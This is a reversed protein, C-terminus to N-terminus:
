RGVGIPMQVVDLTAPHSRIEQVGEPSLERDLSIQAIAAKSSGLVVNEMEQVNIEYKRIISFVDALVGVRDHHRVVLLHTAKSSGKQVNVVNHVAGTLVYDKVIRVTEAAVAEQAQDTSAGIHHTVVVNPLSALPSEVVGEGGSPEGAFVDLGAAINGSKLAEVLAEEDVVEARSTNILVSGPRLADFFEKGIISKTESSYALHLSVIDSLQALDILSEARKIGLAAAVEPTIWRSHAVVTMGFAKARTVMEQAINGLGVLGLTRGYLGRAKSFAKKNWVGRRFDRDCEAIHRDVSLMLGFALEAVAISNKGPCNAVYVGRESAAEVDITNVGAGARIILELKGAFVVDSTVKTSRVILIEPVEAAVADRLSDGVLDPKYLVECGLGKLGSLGVEEFKDAVLVKV